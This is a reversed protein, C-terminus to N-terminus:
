QPRGSLARHFVPTGWRCSHSLYINEVALAPSPIQAGGNATNGKQNAPPPFTPSLIQIGGNAWIIIMILVIM